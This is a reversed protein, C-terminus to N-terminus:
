LGFVRELDWLIVIRVTLMRERTQATIRMLYFYNWRYKCGCRLCKDIWFHKNEMVRKKYYRNLIHENKNEYKTAIENYTPLGNQGYFSAFTNLLMDRGNQVTEMKNMFLTDDFVNDIDETTQKTDTDDNCGFGNQATNQTPSIAMLLHEMVHHKEFRAGVLGVYIAQLPYNAMCRGGNRRSGDNIFHTPSSIGCLASLILEDYSLYESLTPKMKQTIGNMQDLDTIESEKDTGILNWKNAHKHGNRLLYRDNPQYFAVSRKTALRDFLQTVSMTKYLQKEIATGYMKKIHIFRYALLLVSGHILPYCQQMHAYVQESPLYKTQTIISNTDLPFKCIHKEFATIRESYQELMTDIDKDNSKPKNDKQDSVLQAM